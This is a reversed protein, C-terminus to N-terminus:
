EEHVVRNLEALERETERTKRRTTIAVLVVIAAFGGIGVIARHPQALYVSAFEITMWTIWAAGCVALVVLCRRVFVLWRLKAHLRRRTLEVFSRTDTSAPTWTSRFTVFLRGLWVAVFVFNAYALVEMPRPVGRSLLVSYFVVLLLCAALEGVFNWLQRRRDRRIRQLLAPPPASASQWAQSWQTWDDNMTM